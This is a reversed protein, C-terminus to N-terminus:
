SRVFHPIGEPLVLSIEVFGAYTGDEAYWSSQYILKKVGNKEITYVNEQRNDMLGRLKQASAESHCDFLNKGILERGGFSAYGLASQDNMELIIGRPDCVTVSGPFREIWQHKTM